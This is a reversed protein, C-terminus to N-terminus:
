PASYKVRELTEDELEAQAPEPSEITITAHEALLDILKGGIKGDIKPVQAQFRLIVTGGDKPDIRFKRIKVGDFALNRDGTIGSEITMTAGIVDDKWKLVDVKPFRLRTLLEVGGQEALDQNGDIPRTYFSSRLEPAFQALIGNDTTMGLEIDVAKVHQDGHKETRFNLNSVLCDCEELDFRM